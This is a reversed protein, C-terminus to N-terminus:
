STITTAVLPAITTIAQAASMRLSQQPHMMGLMVRTLCEVRPDEPANSATSSSRASTTTNSTPPASFPPPLPFSAALSEATFRAMDGNLRSGIFKHSPPLLANWFTLALSFSDCKSLSFLQASGRSNGIFAMVEPPITGLNGWTNGTPTLLAIMNNSHGQNDPVCQQAMGFDILTLRNTQPDVVINDEKIDRHVILNSELHNVASLAQHFANLTLPVQQQPPLSPLFSRPSGSLCVGGCPMFFVFSKHNKAWEEYAPQDHILDLFEQPLSPIVFAGLPHIINRHHPILSLTECETMYKNRLQTQTSINEMNFQLKMVMM